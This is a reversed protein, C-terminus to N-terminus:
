VKVGKVDSVRKRVLGPLEKEVLRVLGWDTLIYIRCVIKKEKLDREREREV